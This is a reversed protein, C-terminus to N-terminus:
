KRIVILPDVGTARAAAVQSILLPLLLSVTGALLLPLPEAALSAGEVFGSLVRLFLLTAGLGLLVGPVVLGLALSFVMRRIKQPGAGVAMRIGIERTRQTVAAGMATAVGFTSLLLGLAGLASVVRASLYQTFLANRLHDSFAATGVVALDQDYQRLERRIVQAYADPPGSCQVMLTVRRKSNQRYSLYMLPQPREWAKTQRTDAVIGVVEFGADAGRIGPLSVRQTLASGSPWLQRALAENVIVAGPRGAADRATFGRGQLLPVGMTQFYGEGVISFNVPSAEGADEFRQIPTQRSWGSLPVTWSVSASAVGPLDRVRQAVAEYDPRKPAGAAASNPGALEVLLLSESEFGPDTDILRSLNQVLLVTGSMLWMSLGVQAIVLVERAGLRRGPRDGRAGPSDKILASLHKQSSAWLAPLFGALLGSLLGLLAAFSLIRLNIELDAWGSDAAANLMQEIGRTGLFALVTGLASGLIAMLLSELLLRRILQGRSAGLALRVGLGRLRGATRTILLNSVNACTLLVLLSVFIMLGRAAPLMAARAAPDVLHEATAVTFRPQGTAPPSALALSEAVGELRSEAQPLSVGSRLRAVLSLWGQAPDELWQVRPSRLLPAHAIPLYFSAPVGAGVFRQPAVGVVIVPHRNLSIQQGVIEPDASFHQRWLSDSLVVAPESGSRDDEARLLRGAQPPLAFTSFFNGSVVQGFTYLTQSGSDLTSGTRAWAAVHEFAGPVELSEFDPYSVGASGSPTIHVLQEPRSAPLKQWLLFDLYSFVSAACGIAFALSVSVTLSSFPHRVLFRAAQRVEHVGQNM